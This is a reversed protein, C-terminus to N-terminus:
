LAGKRLIYIGTISTIVGALLRGASRYAFASGRRNSPASEATAANAAPQNLSFGFGILLVPIVLIFWNNAVILLLGAVILLLSAILMPLRRGISDSYEGFILMPVLMSLESLSVMGGVVAISGGLTLILPQFLASFITYAGGILFASGVLVPLNRRPVRPLSNDAKDQDSNTSDITVLYLGKRM